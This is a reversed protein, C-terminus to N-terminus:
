LNVYFSFAENSQARGSFFCKGSTCDLKIPRTLEAAVIDGLRQLTHRSAKAIAEIILERPHIESSFVKSSDISVSVPGDGIATHQLKIYSSHDMCLSEAFAEICSDAEQFPYFLIGIGMTEFYRGAFGPNICKGSKTLRSYVVPTWFVNKKSEPLWVDEDDKVRTTDPRVFVRSNVSLVSINM